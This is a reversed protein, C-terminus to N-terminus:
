SFDGHDWAVGPGLHSADPAILVTEAGPERDFDSGGFRQSGRADHRFIGCLGDMRAGIEANFADELDFGLDFMVDDGEGRGHGLDHARVGAPEVVTEGRVVHDISRLCQEDLLCRRQDRAVQLAQGFHEFAPCKLELIRRHDAAGVADVGFRDGESEFDGVPIRLRLAIDRAELGGGFIQAYALERARDPVNAWRM